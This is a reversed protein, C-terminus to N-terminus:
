IKDEYYDRIKAVIFGKLTMGRRKTDQKMTTYLDFPFDVSVRVNRKEQEEEQKHLKQLAKEQEEVSPSTKQPTASRKVRSSLTKRAKAM